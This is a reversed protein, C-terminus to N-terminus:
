RIGPSYGREGSGQLFDSVSEASGLRLEWEAKFALPKKLPKRNKTKVEAEYQLQEEVAERILSHYKAEVLELHDNFTNTYVLVFPNESAM